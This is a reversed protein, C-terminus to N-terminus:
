NVILKANYSKGMSYLSVLFIGKGKIVTAPLEMENNFEVQGAYVVAGLSNIIQLNAKGAFGEVKLRFSNGQLPNPFVSLYEQNVQSNNRLNYSELYGSKLGTGDTLRFKDAVVTALNDNPYDPRIQTILVGAKVATAPATADFNFVAWATTVTGNLLNGSSTSSLLTGASNFWKIEITVPSNAATSAVATKSLAFSCNYINGAIVTARNAAKTEAWGGFQFELKNNGDYASGASVAIHDYGLNFADWGTIGNWAGNAYSVGTESEFSANTSLLNTVTASTVTVACSATKAGDTTTVTLTASGAAIGTVLGTSNVTAVSTNSSSWTVNKNTANSPSITATLTTTALAAVSATTPSMSVSAVAVSSSGANYTDINVGSPITITSIGPGTWGIALNDGGSGEKMLAEFYYKTGATLSIAASKQNAEKTWERSNTWMSVYAVKSKTAPQDNTSLWLEGNDDSAIYLYYSGSTSPILYGRIRAAYNDAANSPAELSNINSSSNAALTFNNNSIATGSVGTWKELVVTGNGNAYGGSSTVTVNDFSVNNFVTTVGIKGSTLSADTVNSFLTTQIDFKTAKVTISNGSYAVEITVNTGNTAYSVANGITSVTGSVKKQLTATGTGSGTFNVFYYNNADVYNFVVQIENGLGSGSGNMDVKYTYPSNFTQGTYIASTSAAWNATAMSAGAVSVNTSLSWSQALNDNFDETYNSTSGGGGTVTIVSSATKSGDQTTVTITASGTAVGTVVGSTNVTAVSNNNSLWSVTKNTANNPAVAATLSTTAGVAVSATTPSLSVGTVTVTTTEAQVGPPLPRGKVDNQYTTYNATVSGTVYFGITKWQNTIKQMRGIAMSAIREEPGASYDRTTYADMGIGVMLKVNSLNVNPDTNPIIRAEFVAYIAQATHPMQARPWTDTWFHFTEGSVMTASTGGGNSTESRQNGNVINSTGFDEKYWGGGITNPTQEIMTWQGSEYKYSVMNRVQVRYNTVPSGGAEVYAQGWINIGEYASNDLWTGPRAGPAWDYNSPVGNPVAEHAGWPAGYGASGDRYVPGMLNYIVQDVTPTPTQAQVSLVFFCVVGLMSFLRNKTKM